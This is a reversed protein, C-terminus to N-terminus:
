STTKATFLLKTGKFEETVIQLEGGLKEARRKMNSIGNTSLTQLIPTGIGNDECSISLINKSYIFKFQIKDAKAHKYVNTFAEKFIFILNKSWYYPLKSNTDIKKHVIFKSNTDKFLDEGFDSLYTVLEELYNSEDNLSFIFDKTGKYLYNADTEIQEIRSKLKVNDENLDEKALNSLLSIRALKNGLDDHFDQAINVRVETLEQELQNQREIAIKLDRNRKKVKRLQALILSIIVLSIAIVLLSIYFVDKYWPIFITFSYKKSYGWIGDQKKARFQLLHTGKKLSSFNLVGKSKDLQVWGDHNLQYETVLSNSRNYSITSYSFSNDLQNILLLPPQELRLPKSNDIITLGKDTGVLVENKSNEFLVNVFPSLLGRNTTINIFNNRDFVSIGRNTGIWLKSTHDVLLTNIQNSILGDKQTFNTLTGDELKCLGRNTAIWLVNDLLLFKRIHESLLKKGSINKSILSNSSKRYYYMGLNSAFWLTDKYLVVDNISGKNKIIKKNYRKIYISDNIIIEGFGKINFQNFSSVEKINKPHYITEKINISNIIIQNNQVSFKKGVGKIKMPFIATTDKFNYLYNPTLFYNVGDMQKIDLILTEQLKNKSIKQFNSQTPNYCFVGEGNTTIWINKENDILFDSVASNIKLVKKLDNKKSFDSNYLFLTKYGRENSVLILYKDKSYREVKCVINCDNMLNLEITKEIVKNKVLFLTDLISVVYHDRGIKSISNISKKDFFSSLSSLTNNSFCHIGFDKDIVNQYFSKIDNLLFTTNDILTIFYRGATNRNFPVKVLQNNKFVLLFKTYGNKSKEYLVNGISQKVIVNDNWVQVNNIKESEDDFITQPIVKDNRILHLGGGWTGVVIDGNKSQNIDIAFNNRMGDDTSFVKFEQGDYKVLGDDTGIWIYGSSDQFIGYTIDHPLGNATNFHLVNEQSFSFLCFFVFLYVAKM